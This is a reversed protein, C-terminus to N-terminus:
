WYKSQNLDKRKGEESSKKPSFGLCEQGTNAQKVVMSPMSTSKIQYARCGKPARIDHTIFYHKCKTCNPKM